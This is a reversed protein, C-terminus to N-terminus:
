NPELYSLDPIIHAAAGLDGGPSISKEFRKRGMADGPYRRRYEALARDLGDDIGVDAVVSRIKSGLRDDDVEDRVANATDRRLATAVYRSPEVKKFADPTLCRELIRGAPSSELPGHEAHMVKSVVSEVATDDLAVPLDLDSLERRLSAAATRVGKKVWPAMSEIAQWRATDGVQVLRKLERRTQSAPQLQVDVTDAVLLDEPIRNATPSATVSLVGSRDIGVGIAHWRLQLRERPGVVVLQAPEWEVRCPYHITGGDRNRAKRGITEEDGPVWMWTPLPLLACRRPLPGADLIRTAARGVIIDAVHTTFTDTWSHRPM